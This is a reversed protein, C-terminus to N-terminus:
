IVLFTSKGNNCNEGKEKWVFCKCDDKSLEKKIALFLQSGKWSGGLNPSVTVSDIERDITLILSVIFQLM